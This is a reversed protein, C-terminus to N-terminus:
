IDSPIPFFVRNRSIFFLGVDRRTVEGVIAPELNVNRLAYTVNRMVGGQIHVGRSLQTNTQIYHQYVLERCNLVGHSEAEESPRSLFASVTGKLVIEMRGCRRFLRWGFWVSFGGHMRDGVQPSELILASSLRNKPLRPAAM